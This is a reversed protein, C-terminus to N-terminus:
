IKVVRLLAFPRRVTDDFLIKSRMLTSANKINHILASKGVASGKLEYNPIKLFSARTLLEVHQTVSGLM